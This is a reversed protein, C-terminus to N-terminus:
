SGRKQAWVTMARILLNISNLWLQMGADVANDLDKVAIYKMRNVDRVTILAFLGIGIYAVWVLITPNHAAAKLTSASILLYALLSWDLIESFVTKSLNVPIALGILGLVIMGAGVIMVSPVLVEVGLEKVVPGFLVGFAGSVLILYSGISILWSQSSITWLTGGIMSALVVLVVAVYWLVSTPVWNRFYVATVTMSVYGLLMSILSLAYFTPPAFTRGGSRNEGTEDFVYDPNGFELGSGPKDSRAM